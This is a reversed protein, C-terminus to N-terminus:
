VHIIGNQCLSEGRQLCVPYWGPTTLLIKAALPPFVFGEGSRRDASQGDGSTDIRGRIFHGGKPPNFFTTFFIVFIGQFTIDELCLRFVVKDNKAIHLVVYFYCFNQFFRLQKRSAAPLNYIQAHPPNRFCFAFTIHYLLSIYSLIRGSHVGSYLLFRGAVLLCPDHLLTYIYPQSCLGSCAVFTFLHIFGM